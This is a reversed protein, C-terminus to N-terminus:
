SQADRLRSKYDQLAQYVRRWLAGPKGDAVTKGDLRTIAQIERLSSTIWVEQAARLQQESIETEQCTLGADKALDLILDRTVGPLLYQSKAPTIV